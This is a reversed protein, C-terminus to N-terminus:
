NFLRLLVYIGIIEIAGLLFFKMVKSRKVSVTLSDSWDSENGYIDKAKVRVHFHQNDQLDCIKLNYEQYVDIVEQVTTCFSLCHARIDWTYYDDLFVPLKIGPNKITHHPTAFSAYYLGQDNMGSYPLEYDPDWPLPWDFDFLIKGYKGNESPFFRANFFPYYWDENDGTLVNDGESATFGTCASIPSILLASSIIFFVLLIVIIKTKM